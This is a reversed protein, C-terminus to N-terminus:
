EQKHSSTPKKDYVVKRRTAKGKATNDASGLTNQQREHQEVWHLLKLTTGGGPEREGSLWQSINSLPVSMVKALKSKMGRQSTAKNLRELLNAMTSKVPSVNGSATVSTLMNKKSQSGALAKRAAALRIREWIIMDGRRDIVEASEPPLAKIFKNATQLLKDSFAEVHGLPVQEIWHDVLQKLIDSHVLRHTVDTTGTATEQGEIVRLVPEPLQPKGTQDFLSFQSAPAEGQKQTDSNAPGTAALSEDAVEAPKQVVASLLARSPLGTASPVPLDDHEFDNPFPFGEELWLLSIGFAQRLRWAIDYRLPTRGYEISALQDRTIGLQEAFAAQSWNISERATKVRACIAREWDTM